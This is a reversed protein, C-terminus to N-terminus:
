VCVIDADSKEYFFVNLYRVRGVLQFKKIEKQDIFNESLEPNM